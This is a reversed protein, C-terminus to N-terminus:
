AGPTCVCLDLTRDETGGSTPSFIGSKYLSKEFKNKNMNFISFTDIKITNIDDKHANINLFVIVAKQTFKPM